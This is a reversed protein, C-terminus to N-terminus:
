REVAIELDNFFAAARVASLQLREEVAPLWQALYADDLRDSDPYVRDRLAASEGIWVDPDPTSFTKAKQPSLKLKRIWAKDSRKGYGLISSDWVRHLNTLKGDLVLKINNGGRDKGNGVHMPQHLDQVIHLAFRLALQKQARSAGPDELTERFQQLATMSDGKRPPGVDAYRKGAPVTVYHYPGATKQWFRSPNDRMRDAWTSADALSEQGILAKFAARSDSDLYEWTLTGAIRHGQPGWAHSIGSAAALFISLIIRPLASFPKSKLWM